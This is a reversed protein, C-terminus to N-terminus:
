ILFLNYKEVNEIIPSYHLIDTFSDHNGIKENFIEINIFM